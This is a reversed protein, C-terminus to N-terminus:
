LGRAREQRRIAGAGIPISGIEGAVTARSLM